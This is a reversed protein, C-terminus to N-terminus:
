NLAQWDAERKEHLIRARRYVEEKDGFSTPGIGEVVLSAAAAGVHSCWACDEGHAYEALFAGIFADGAGTPDVVKSSQYAPVKHSSGEVSVIAGEAGLTIIVISVGFDHLIAVASDIDPAGTLTEIEATTSKVIDILEFISRDVPKEFTVNGNEDFSRILGQPDLSMIRAHPRLKAIIDYDVERAIPALHVITATLSDPVQYANIPSVRNRSILVRRSLDESYKLEFRTTLENDVITLGSLDVGEQQLWWRYASPFDTGVKSIVSVCADLRRASFSAYAVSGGLV